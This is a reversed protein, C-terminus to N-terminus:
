DPVRVVAQGRRLAARMPTFLELDGPGEFVLRVGNSLLLEMAGASLTVRGSPLKQGARYVAADAAIAGRTLEITAIWQASARQFWAGALARLTICAARTLWNRRRNAGRASASVEAAVFPEASGCVAEAEVAERIQQYLMVAETFIRLNQADSRLWATVEAREAEDLSDDLYAAILKEPDTM